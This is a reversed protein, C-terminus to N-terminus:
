PFFLQILYVQMFGVYVYFITQVNWAIKAIYWGFFFTDCCCCDRALNHVSYLTCHLSCAVLYEQTCYILMYKFYGLWIGSNYMCHNVFEMTQWQESAIYHLMLAFPKKLVIQIFCNKQVTDTILLWLNGFGRKWINLWNKLLVKCKLAWSNIVFESFDM